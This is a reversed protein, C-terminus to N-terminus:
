EDNGMKKAAKRLASRRSRWRSLFLLTCGFVFIVYNKRKIGLCKCAIVNLVIIVSSIFIHILCSNFNGLCLEFESINLTAYHIIGFLEFGILFQERRFFKSNIAQVHMTCWWNAPSYNHANAYNISAYKGFTQFQFFYWKM